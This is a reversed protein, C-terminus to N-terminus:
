MVLDFPNLTVRIKYVLDLQRQQSSRATPPSINVRTPLCTLVRSGSFETPVTFYRDSADVSNPEAM